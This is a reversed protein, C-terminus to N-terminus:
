EAFNFEHVSWWKGMNVDSVIKFMKATIPKDFTIELVKGKKSVKFAVPEATAMSTGAFVKFSTPFDNPSSSLNFYLKSVKQAKKFDIGFWMGKTITNNNTWRSNEDGDLAPNFDIVGGNLMYVPDKSNDSAEYESKMNIEYISWWNYLKDATAVVKIVKASIPKEFGITLIGKKKTIICDVDRVTSLSTGAMIKFNDPFDNQSTGLNFEIEGVKKPFGFDFAIWHGKRILTGNSWRTLVDKDLANRFDSGGESSLYTTKIKSLKKQAKAAEDNRGMSKLLEIGHPTPKRTMIDAAKDKEEKRLANKVIYDATVDDFGCRNAVDLIAIQAIIKERANSSANAIAMLSEFALASDFEGLAKIAETKLGEAYAKRCLEVAKDNSAYRVLRLLMKKTAADAKAYASEVHSFMEIEFCSQASRLLAKIAEAKTKKDNESAIIKSVISFVEANAISTATKMTAARLEPSKSEYGAFLEKVLSDLNMKALCASILATQKKDAKLIQELLVRATDPSKISVIYSAANQINGGTLYKAGKLVNAINKPSGAKAAAFASAVALNESTPEIELAKSLDGGRAAITYILRAKGNDDLAEFTLYDPMPVKPNDALYKMLLCQQKVGQVLQEPIKYKREKAYPVSRKKFHDVANSLRGRIGESEPNKMLREFKKCSAKNQIGSAWLLEALLSRYLETGKNQSIQAYIFDSVENCYKKDFNNSYVGFIVENIETDKEGYNVNELAAIQALTPAECIAGVPTKTGMPISSTDAELDGCAFQVLRMALEQIRPNPYNSWDHGFGFYAVRGKGESKIWVVGIDKDKRIYPENLRRHEECFYSQDTDLRILVRCKSRDYSKGMMYIEDHLVIGNSPWIGKTIPSNEDDITFTYKPNKDADFWWPHDIFDGGILNTYDWCRINDYNYCDPASHLGMVGGGNNVYEVLNKVYEYSKEVAKKAEEKSMKDIEVNTPGFCAATPNNLIVADYKKLNEPTFENIDDSIVTEWTGLKEGMYKFVEKAAVIGGYHRFGSTRSFILIKRPKKPAVAPKEPAAKHMAQIRDQGLVPDPSYRMKVQASSPLAALMAVAACSLLLLKKM